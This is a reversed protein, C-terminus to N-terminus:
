QQKVHLFYIRWIQVHVQGEIAEITELVISFIWKHPAESLADIALGREVREGMVADEFYM